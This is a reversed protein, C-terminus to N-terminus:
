DISKISKIKVPMGPKLSLLGTTIVTDGASIGNLVQVMASSRLGTQVPVVSAQGNKLVMLKKSKADPIISQSPVMLAKSEKLALKVVAFTGPSLQGNANPVVARIKINRTTPDAKTDIAYITSQGPKSHGDVVFSVKDSVKIQSLYKEPVSFELKCPDLQQLVTIVTAPTVYAGVSISKLGLKGSFPARIETKSLNVRTIELDAKINNVQGVANDYDQQSAGNISLLQKLREETKQALDLQVTLKSLQAKVDADFIKAILSGKTVFGGEKLNLVTIKGNIEPRIEVEENPLLQGPLDVNDVLVTSKVLFGEVATSIKPGTPAALSAAAAAVKKKEVYKSWLLYIMLLAGALVLFNVIIKKTSVQQM